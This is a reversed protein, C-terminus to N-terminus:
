NPWYHGRRAADEYAARESRQPKDAAFLKRPDPVQIEGAPYVAVVRFGMAQAKILTDSTLTKTGAIGALIEAQTNAPYVLRNGYVDKVTVAIVPNVASNAPHPALRTVNSM